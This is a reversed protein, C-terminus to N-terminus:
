IDVSGATERQTENREQQTEMERAPRQAGPEILTVTGAAQEVSVGVVGGSVVLFAARNYM